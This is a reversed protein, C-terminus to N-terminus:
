SMDCGSKDDQRLQAYVVIYAIFSMAMYGITSGKLYMYVISKNLIVLEASHIYKYLLCSCSSLSNVEEEGHKLSM